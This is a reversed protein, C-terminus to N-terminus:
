CCRLMPIDTLRQESLFCKIKEVFYIVFFSSNTIAEMNGTKEVTRRGM